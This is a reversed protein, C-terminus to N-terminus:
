TLLDGPLAILTDDDILAAELSDLICDLATLAHDNLLGAARDRWDELGGLAERIATELVEIRDM